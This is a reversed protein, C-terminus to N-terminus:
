QAPTVAKVSVVEPMAGMAAAGSGGTEGAERLKVRWQPAGAYPLRALAGAVLYPLAAQADADRDRKVVNVRYAETGDPLAFFRLTLTHVYPRGFWPFSAGASAACADKCDSTAVTVNAPRTSWAASVLYAAAQPQGEVFGRKALGDRLLTEYPPNASAGAEAQVPTPAFRYAVTHQNADPLAGRADVDATVGACGTLAGLMLFTCITLPIKM